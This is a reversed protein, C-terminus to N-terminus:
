HKGKATRFPFVRRIYEAKLEWFTAQVLEGRKTWDNHMPTTIFVREWNKSKYIAKEAEPLANWYADQQKDEEETDSILSDCLVIHWIDFDSLVVLEDPVDLELCVYDENGPGYCWRESRLDPKKHKGRQKYWAWVPYRVGAPPPGVKETMREALWDYQKTFEPMTTREPDCIYVGTTQVLDLIYRPQMTWLIM